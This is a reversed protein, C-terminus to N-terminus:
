VCIACVSGLPLPSRWSVPRTPQPFPLPPPTTAPYMHGYGSHMYPQQQHYMPAQPQQTPPQYMRPPYMPPQQGRDGFMGTGYQHGSHSTAVPQSFSLAAPGTSLTEVAAQIGQLRRDEIGALISMEKERWQSEFEAKAREMVKREDEEKLAKAKQSLQTFFNNDEPMFPMFVDKNAILFENRKERADEMERRVQMSSLMHCGKILPVRYSLLLLVMYPPSHGGSCGM